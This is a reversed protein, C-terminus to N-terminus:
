KSKIIEEHNKEGFEPLPRFSLICIYLHVTM